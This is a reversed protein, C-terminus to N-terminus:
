FNDRKKINDRKWLPQLNTLGNVMKPDDEKTFSSVPKIHDIQWEGWNEWSMGDLFLSEMHKKLDESSYGLIEITKKEKTSGIRRLASSLMGRWAYVHPLRKYRLIFYQNYKERNKIRYKKSNERHKEKFEDYREVWQIKRCEKCMSRYGDKTGIQKHFNNTSKEMKCSSCIKSTIVIKENNKNILYNYKSKIKRCEKCECYFGDKSGRDKHFDTFDKEMLCKNCKKGM